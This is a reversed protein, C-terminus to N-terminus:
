PRITLSYKKSLNKKLAFGNKKYFKGAMKNANTTTVDVRGIGNVKADDILTMLLKQGLGSNRYKEEVFILDIHRTVQGRIFNIWDYSLIFGVLVGKKDAVWCDFLADKGFGFRAFIKPKSKSAENHFASLKHMLRNVKVADAKRFRRVNISRTTM